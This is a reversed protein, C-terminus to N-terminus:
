FRNQGGKVALLCKHLVYYDTTDSQKLNVVRGTIVEEMMPTLHAVDRRRVAVRASAWVAAVLEPFQPRHTAM